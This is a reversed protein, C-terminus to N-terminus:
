AEEPRKRTASQVSYAISPASARLPLLRTGLLRFGQLTSAIDEFSRRTAAQALRIPLELLFTAGFHLWSTPGPYHKRFYRIRSELVYALRHAKVQESTGGGKHYVQTDALFFTQWGANLARRSFDVEEYYVFYQEDFGGLHEYTARRTLFFAGMVQDVFRSDGHDWEVMFHPLVLSPALRDLGVMQGITRLPSPFRACSRHVGGHEDCLQVGLIGVKDQSPSALYTIATTLSRPEIRTDPNLFLLFDAHSGMAGQNCAAAFGRNTDNFILHVPLDPDGLADASGDSSANDVIVVRELRFGSREAAAISRVCDRLQEGANWNVIVIDLSPIAM